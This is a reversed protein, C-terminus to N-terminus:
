KQAVYPTHVNAVLGNRQRSQYPREAVVWSHGRWGHQAKIMRTKRRAHAYKQLNRVHLDFKWLRERSWRMVCLPPVNLRRSQRYWHPPIVDRLRPQGDDGDYACPVDVHRLLYLI